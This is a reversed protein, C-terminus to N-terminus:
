SRRRVLPLFIQRPNALLTASRTMTSYGPAAITVQNVIAQPNAATVTAAYTITVAPAPSLAGSWTLTPALSDNPTGATAALTGPIYVLGAPVVDTLYVTATLPASLGQVVITYSVTEGQWALLPTVTKQPEPRGSWGAIRALMWWFARGKLACNLPESHACDCWACRADSPHAACWEQAWNRTWNDYYCGDDAGRNLYGNGAPDYSEIDAFDFLVKGNAQCYARIQENRQNLNGSVGTGDLHGTMYVFTVGPYEQELQNMANLYANIGAVTNDSVGGCWSWVVVNINPHANLYDRTLDAWTTDGNHGLDGMDGYHDDLSLAGPQVSGDTTLNYLGSPTQSMLVEMGTVPQSGHSTHGYFVRLNAKAAKIWYAPIAALNTHNHNIIIAGDAHSAEHLSTKHTAAAPIALAVLLVVIIMMLVANQKM